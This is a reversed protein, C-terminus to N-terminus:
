AKLFQNKLRDALRSFGHEIGEAPQEAMAEKMSVRDVLVQPDTELIIRHCTLRM